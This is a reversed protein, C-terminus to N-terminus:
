LILTNSYFQCGIFELGFFSKPFHSGDAGLNGLILNGRGGTALAKM